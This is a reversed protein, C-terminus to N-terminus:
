IKRWFTIPYDHTLAPVPILFYSIWLIDPPREEGAHVAATL